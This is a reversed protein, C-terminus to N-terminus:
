GGVTYGRGTMCVAFAQNFSNSAQNALDQRQQAYSDQQFQEQQDWRRRRMGGFVGGAAGGIAAGEGANGAIAGGIAGMAAGGGAGRLMGGQPAGAAPPGPNQLSSSDFGTQQSAWNSCQAKDSQEQQPSQGSSPYIFMRGAGGVPAM